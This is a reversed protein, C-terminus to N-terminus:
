PLLENLYAELEDLDVFFDSGKGMDKTINSFGLSHYDFSLVESLGFFMSNIVEKPFLELVKLNKSFIINAFASGHPGIVIEADIFLDVQQKLTLLEPYVLIFGKTSLFNTIDQENVVRRTKAYNRSLYLRLKEDRPHKYHTKLISNSMSSLLHYNYSPYTMILASGLVQSNDNLEVIRYKIPTLTAILDLKWQPCKQETVIIVEKLDLFEKFQRLVVLKPLHEILFHSFNNWNSTLLVVPSNAEHVIKKRAINKIKRVFNLGLTIYIRYNSVENKFYISDLFVNHNKQLTIATNTISCAAIMVLQYKSSPAELPNKSGHASPNSYHGLSFINDDKAGQTIDFTKECTFMCLNLERKESIWRGKSWYILFGIIIVVKKKQLILFNQITELM